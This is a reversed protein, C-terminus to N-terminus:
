GNQYEQYEKKLSKRIESLKYKVTGTPMKMIEGIDKCKIKDYYYLFAIEKLNPELKKLFDSIFTIEDNNENDNSSDEFSM